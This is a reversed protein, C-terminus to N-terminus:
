PTLIFATIGCVIGIVGIVIVWAVFVAKKDTLKDAITYLVHFWWGLATTAFVFVMSFFIAGLIEM